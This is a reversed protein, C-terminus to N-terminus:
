SPNTFGRIGGMRSSMWPCTPWTSKALVCALGISGVKLEVDDMRMM